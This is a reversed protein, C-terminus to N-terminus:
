TDPGCSRAAVGPMLNAADDLSNRQFIRVADADLESAGIVPGEASPAIVTIQGLTFTDSATAEGSEAALAPAVCTCSLLAAIATPYRM